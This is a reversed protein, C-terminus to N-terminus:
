RGGRETVTNVFEGYNMLSIRRRLDPTDHIPLTPPFKSCLTLFVMVFGLLQM